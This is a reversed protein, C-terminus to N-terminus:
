VADDFLGGPNTRGLCEPCIVWARVIVAVPLPNSVSKGCQTCRVRYTHDAQRERAQQDRTLVADVAAQAARAREVFDRLDDTTM